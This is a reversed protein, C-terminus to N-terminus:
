RPTLRLTADAAQDALMPKLYTNGYRAYKERYAADVAARADGGPQEATVDLELGAARIRASGQGNAHRYWAGASGRYSRVYFEDGVRVGWIPVWARPSGDARLTTIELQEADGFRDLNEPTWTTM